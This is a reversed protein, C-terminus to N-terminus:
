LTCLITALILVKICSFRLKVNYRGITFMARMDFLLFGCSGKSSPIVICVRMLVRFINFPIKWAVVLLGLLHFFFLRYGRMILATLIAPYMWVALTTNQGFSVVVRLTIILSSWQKLATIHLYDVIVTKFLLAFILYFLFFFHMLFASGRMPKNHQM